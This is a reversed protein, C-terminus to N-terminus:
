VENESLEQELEEMTPLKGKFESPLTETLQYESVGMPKALGKLSYAAVIENKDKCLILGISPQDDPHKLVDDIVNLYFNMKGAYEPKFKGNKLDIVVYCRLQTHYFLLDLYFDEGGIDLPYQSGVFAFGRGLELLFDRIHELSAKEVERELADEAIGLFEFNYPDKLTQRALDSQLAPLTQDFNSIAKGQRHYLDTEIQMELINRSWGNEITKQIYWLRQDHDKVKDLIRMNHGWPIQAVLQQAIAEDPYFEALRRMYELNRQSLGKMDPFAKRLDRSLQKIVGSGWGLEAQKELISKGIQWYLKILEANVALAAKLQARKVREKLDTLWTQYSHDNTDPLTM